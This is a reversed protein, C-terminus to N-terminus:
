GPWSYVFALTLNAAETEDLGAMLFSCSKASFLLCVWPLNVMPSSFFCLTKMIVETLRERENKVRDTLSTSMIFLIRLHLLDRPLRIVHIHHALQPLHLIAELSYTFGQNAITQNEPQSKGRGV